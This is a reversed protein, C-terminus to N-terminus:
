LYEGSLNPKNSVLEKLKFSNNEKKRGERWKKGGEKRREIKQNNTDCNQIEPFYTKHVPSVEFECLVM